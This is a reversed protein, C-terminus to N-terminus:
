QESLQMTYLQILPMNGFPMAYIQSNDLSIKRHTNAWKKLFERIECAAHTFSMVVRKTIRLYGIVITSQSEKRLM